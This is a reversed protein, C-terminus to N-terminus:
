ARTEDPVAVLPTVSRVNHSPVSAKSLRVSVEWSESMDNWSEVLYAVPELDHDRDDTSAGDTPQQELSATTVRPSAHESHM